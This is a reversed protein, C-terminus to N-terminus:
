IDDGGEGGGAEEMKAKAADYIGDYDKEEMEAMKAYGFQKLIARAANVDFAEKVENLAAMAEDKTHESGKAAPKAKAASKAKTNTATAAPAAAPASGGALLAETNKNVAEILDSLLTEISM